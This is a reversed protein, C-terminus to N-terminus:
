IVCQKGMTHTNTVTSGTGICHWNRQAIYERVSRVRLYLKKEVSNLINFM